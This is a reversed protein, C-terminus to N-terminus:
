RPWAHQDDAIRLHGNRAAHFVHRLRREADVAVLHADADAEAHLRLHGVIEELSQVVREAIGEHRLRRLLARRLVADGAGVRVGVRMAAVLEARLGDRGPAELAFDDQHLDLLAPGFDGDRLVVV